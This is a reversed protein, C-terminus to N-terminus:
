KAPKYGYGANQAFAAAYSGEPATITLGKAGYEFADPDIEEIGAGLTIQKLGTCEGFAFYGIKRLTSPMVLKNLKKCGYFSQKGIEELGEPFDIKSLSACDTFAFDGIYKLGNGKIKVTNLKGCERFAGRGISTVGEPITVSQLSGQRACMAAPIETLGAPLELSTLFLDDFAHPAIWTVGDPLALKTIATHMFRVGIRRLSSPLALKKLSWIDISGDGIEELGEPLTLSKMKSSYVASRGLIKLTAPFEIDTADTMLFVCGTDPLASISVVTLGDLSDPVTIKKEGAATFGCIAITDPSLMYYTYQGSTHLAVYDHSLDFWIKRGNVSAPYQYYELVPDERTGGPGYLYPHGHLDLILDDPGMLFHPSSDYHNEQVYDYDLYLLELLEHTLTGTSQLSCRPPTLIIRVGDPIGSVDVYKVPHGDVTRPVLWMDAPDAAPLSLVTANGDQDLTYRIGDDTLMEEGSAACVALALVLCTFLVPLIRNKM